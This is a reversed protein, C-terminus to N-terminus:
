GAKCANFAAKLVKFSLRPVTADTPAAPNSDTMPNKPFDTMCNAAAPRNPATALAAMLADKCAAPTADRDVAVAM